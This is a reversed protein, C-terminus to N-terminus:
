GRLGLNADARSNRQVDHLVVGLREDAVGRQLGTAVQRNKRRLDIGRLGGVHLCADGLLDLRINVVHDVLHLGNGIPELIALRDADVAQVADDLDEVVLNGVPDIRDPVLTAVEDGGLLLRNGLSDQRLHEVHEAGTETNRGSESGGVQTGVHLADRVVDRTLHKAVEEAHVRQPVEKGVANGVHERRVHQPVRILNDVLDVLEHARDEIRAGHRRAREGGPGDRARAGRVHANRAADRDGDNGAVRSGGDRLM